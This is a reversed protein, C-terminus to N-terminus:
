QYPYDCRLVRRRDKGYGAAEMQGKWRRVIRFCLDSPGAEGKEGRTACILDVEWGAKVYKAVTGAAAFSEDDPHAFVLLIKKM